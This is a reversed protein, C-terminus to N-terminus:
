CVAETLSPTPAAVHTDEPAPEHAAPAVHRQSSVAPEALGVVFGILTLLAGALATSRVGAGPLLVSGVFAAVTIGINFGTSTGAAAMESGGPDVVLVRAGLAASLAALTFGSGSMTIVTAVQSGGMTYQRALAVTEIAMLAVMVQWGYRDVLFGVVFVVALGAM